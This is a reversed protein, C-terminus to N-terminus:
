PSDEERGRSEPVNVTLNIEPQRRRFLNRLVFYLIVLGALVFLLNRPSGLLKANKHWFLSFPVEGSLVRLTSALTQGQALYELMAQLDPSKLLIQRVLEGDLESMLAPEALIASVLINKQQPGLEALYQSALLSLLEVPLAEIIPGIHTSPLALLLHQEDQGLLMLKQIDAADGLALILELEERSEFDSPSAFRYMEFEVVQGILDGALEAWAILTDMDETVRFIEFAKEPLALIFELQGSEILIALQEPDKEEVMAVLEALKAVEDIETRELFSRFRGNEEALELVRAFDVRFDQWMSFTSDAIDRALAPLEIRLEENVEQATWARIETKVEEAQFSERIYPLAGERANYLDWIILVAGVIWGVIPIASVVVRGMIRVVIKSFINRTVQQALRKAIQTGIQTGLIVAVGGGLGQHQKLIDVFDSDTDPDLIIIELKDQIEEELVSVMTQSFRDGIFAQVCLLASSASQATIRRIEGVVDAATEESLQDVRARFEPSSFAKDAVETALEEAKEPSWGSLIVIIPGKERRVQEIAADVAADVAADLNLAVWNRDVIAAVDMGDQEEAFVAQTIRNLEDRLSAETVQECEEFTYSSPPTVQARATRPSLFAALLLTVLLAVTPYVRLKAGSRWEM